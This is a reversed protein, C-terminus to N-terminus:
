QLVSDNQEVYVSGIVMGSSTLVQCQCLTHSPFEKEQRCEKCITNDSLGMVRLQWSFTYCDALFRNGTQVIEQGLDRLSKVTFVFSGDM